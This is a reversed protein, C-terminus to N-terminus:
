DKKKIKISIEIDVLKTYIHSDRGWDKIEGLKSSIELVKERIDTLMPEIEIFKLAEVKGKKTLIRIKRQGRQHTKKNATTILKEHELVHLRKQCPAFNLKTERKIERTGLGEPHEYLVKLIQISKFDSLM